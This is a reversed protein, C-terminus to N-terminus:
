DAPPDRIQKSCRLKEEMASISKQKFFATKSLKRVSRDVHDYNDWDYDFSDYYLM